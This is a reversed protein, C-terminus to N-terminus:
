RVEIHDWPGDLVVVLPLLIKNPKKFLWHTIPVEKLIQEIFHLLEIRLTVNLRQALLDVAGQAGLNMNPSKLFLDETSLLGNTLTFHGALSRFVIGEASINPLRMRLYNTLNLVSVIRYLTKFERLVGHDIEAELTGNLGNVWHATMPFTLAADTRGTGSLVPPRAFFTTMVTDVPITQLTIHLQAQPSSARWDFLGTWEVQMGQLNMTSATVELSSGGHLIGNFIGHQISWAEYGYPGPGKSPHTPAGFLSVTQGITLSDVRATITSDSRGASQLWSLELSGTKERVAKLRAHRSGHLDAAEGDVRFAGSVFPELRATFELAPKWRARIKFDASKSLAPVAGHTMTRVANLDVNTVHLDIPFEAAGAYHLNVLAHPGLKPFTGIVAGTENQLDASGNLRSVVWKTTPITAHDWVELTGNRIQLTVPNKEASPAHATGTSAFTVWREGRATKERHLIFRPRSFRITDFRVNGKLLSKFSLAVHVAGVSALVRPRPARQLFVSHRIVVGPSPFLTGRVNGIVVHSQTTRELLETIQPRLPSLNLFTPLNWLAFSLTLAAALLISWRAIRSASHKM